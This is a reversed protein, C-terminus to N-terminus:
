CTSTVRCHLRSPRCSAHRWCVCPRHSSGLFHLGRRRNGRASAPGGRAKAFRLDCSGTLGVLLLWLVHPSKTIADFAASGGASASTALAGEGAASLLATAVDERRAPKPGAHCQTKGILCGMLAPAGLLSWVLTLGALSPSSPTRAFIAMRPMIWRGIFRQL